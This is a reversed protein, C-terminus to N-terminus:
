AQRLPVLMANELVTMEPFPRPIQFTRALGRHFIKDPSLGDIREGAFRIEGSSPKLSGAILNFVTTKGAGNPGILGTIANAPAVFDASDVANLSGFSRVVKRVELM